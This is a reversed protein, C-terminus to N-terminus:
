IFAMYAGKRRTLKGLSGSKLDDKFLSKARKNLKQKSGPKSRWRIFNETNLTDSSYESNAPSLQNLDKKNKFSSSIIPQSKSSRHKWWCVLM